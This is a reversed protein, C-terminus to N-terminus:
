KINLKENSVYDVFLEKVQKIFVPYSCIDADKDKYRVYLVKLPVGRAYDEFIDLEILTDWELQKYPKAMCKETKLKNSYNLDDSKM